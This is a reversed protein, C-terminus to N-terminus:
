RRPSEEGIEPTLHNKRIAKGISQRKSPSFSLGWDSSDSRSRESVDSYSRYRMDADSEPTKGLDPTPHDELTQGLVPTPHDSLNSSKSSHIRRFNKSHSHTLSFIALEADSVHAVLVLQDELSSPRRLTLGQFKVPTVDDSESDSNEATSNDDPRFSVQRNLCIPDSTFIDDAITIPSNLATRKKNKMIKLCSKMFPVIGSAVAFKSPAQCYQMSENKRFEETGASQSFFTLCVGMLFLLTKKM